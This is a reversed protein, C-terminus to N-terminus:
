TSTESKSFKKTKKVVQMRKKPFGNEEFFFFLLAEGQKKEKKPTVPNSGAAEVDRVDREVLSLWVGFYM